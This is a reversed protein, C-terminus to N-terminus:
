GVWGRGKGVWRMEDGRPLLVRQVLGRRHRRGRGGCVESRARRKVLARWAAPLWVAPLWAAPLWAAPLWAAPLWVAPLWVPPSGALHSRTPHWCWVQGRCLKPQSPPHHRMERAQILCLWTHQLAFSSCRLPAFVPAELNPQCFPALATVLTPGLTLLFPASPISVRSFSSARPTLRASYM